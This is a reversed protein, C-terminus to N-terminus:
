RQGFAFVISLFHISSYHGAFGGASGAGRVAHGLYAHPIGDEGHGAVELLAGGFGGGVLHRLDDRRLSRQAIQRARRSLQFSPLTLSASDEKAPQELSYNNGM